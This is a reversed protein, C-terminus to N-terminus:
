NRSDPTIVIDDMCSGQQTVCDDAAASWERAYARQYKIYNENSVYHFYFVQGRHNVYTVIRIPNWPYTKEENTNESRTASSAGGQATLSIAFSTFLVLSLILNIKTKM